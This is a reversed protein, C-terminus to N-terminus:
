EVLVIRKTELCGAAKMRVLYVGSASGQGVDNRGNWIVRHHGPDQPGAWLSRVKRGRVDFVDLEVRGQKQLDYAITTQPNFPNPYAGVLGTRTALPYDEVGSVGDFITLIYGGKELIDRSDPRFVALCYKARFSAAFAVEETQGAPELWAAGGIIPASRTQYKPNIHTSDCHVSLGWNLSGSYNEVRVTYSGPDLELEYIDIIHLAPMKRAEQSGIPQYGLDVSNVVEAYYGDGADFAYVGVDFVRKPTRFNNILIYDTQSNTWNSNVLFTSGSFGDKVGAAAEHLRIEVRSSDRPMSAIVQWNGPESPGPVPLRLGDCNYYSPENATLFDFGGTTLPPQSKATAVGYNLVAPSWVWQAGYFNNLEDKEAVSDPLDIHLGITHRGGRITHMTTGLNTGVSGKDLRDWNVDWATIEGDLSISSIFNFADLGGSNMIAQNFYTGGTMFTNGNLTDPYVGAMIQESNPVLPAYWIEPVVAVLDAPTPAITLDLNMSTIGDLPDRYIMLCHYGLMNLGLNELYMVATGTADTAVTQAADDLVGRNFPAGFWSLHVTKNPADTHLTITLNNADLTFLRFEKLSMRESVSWSWSHTGLPLITESTIRSVQVSPFGVPDLVQDGLVGVNWDQQGAKHQNVLVADLYGAERRSYAEYFDLGATNSTVPQHLRIDYDYTTNAAQVTVAEWNGTNEFSYGLCNYFISGFEAIGGLPEPPPVDTINDGPYLRVPNWIYQAGYTNNTEDTEPIVEEADLIMGVTHRGGEIPMDAYNIRSFIQFESMGGLALNDILEGDLYTDMATIESFSSEGNNHVGMAFHTNAVRSDVLNAPVALPGSTYTHQYPILPADWDVMSQPILDAPYPDRITIPGFTAFSQSHKGSNDFTYINIYWTGPNAQPTNLFNVPGIMQTTPPPNSPFQTVLYSYGGIGSVDDYPTAWTLEVTGDPSSVGVTHTASALDGIKDPPLNDYDQGNNMATEWLGAKEGPFRKLLETFYGAASQPMQIDAISVLTWGDLTLVDEHNGDIKTDNENASDTIDTWLATWFGETHYPDCPCPQSVDDLCDGILERYRFHDPVPSFNQLERGTLYALYDAFAENEITPDDNEQCWSCHGPDGSDCVGNDYDPFPHLSFQDDWFHGYEHQYTSERWEREQDIHIENFISNYEANDGPWQVDVADMAYGHDLYVDIARHLIQYMHAAQVNEGPMFGGFDLDTGTFDNKVWTDWGYTWELWATQIDLLSNAALTEVYIDPNDECLYCPDWTFSVDFTGDPGTIGMALLDDAGYDEDYVYFLMDSSPEWVVSEWSTGRDQLRWYGATGHVRITRAKDGAGKGGDDGLPQGGARAQRELVMDKYNRDPWHLSSLDLKQEKAPLLRAPGLRDRLFEPGVQLTRTFPRGDIKFSVGLPQEPETPIATFPLVFEEGEALKLERRSSFKQASWGQGTFFLDTLTVPAGATIVFAAAYPEWAKAAKPQSQLRIKIPVFSVSAEVPIVWLLWLGVALSSVSIGKLRRTM